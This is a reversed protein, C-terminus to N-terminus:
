TNILFVGCFNVNNPRLVTKYCEALPIFKRKYLTPWNLVNLHDEEM